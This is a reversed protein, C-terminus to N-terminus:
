IGFLKKFVMMGLLTALLSLSVNLAINLFAKSVLGEQLLLLTELSFTSFTTLAGLFGTMLMAKLNASISQEFYLFLFGILFSGLINVSLTGLPFSSLKNIYFSLVFRLIAGLSGGLAVSFIISFSM